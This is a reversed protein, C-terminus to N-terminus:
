WGAPQVRDAQRKAAEDGEDKRRALEREEAPTLLRGDGIQRVYLKLPDDANPGALDLRERSAADDPRRTRRRDPRLSARGCQRGRRQIPARNGRKLSSLRSSPDSSHVLLWRLTRCVTDENGDDVTCHTTRYPPTAVTRDHAANRTVAQTGVRPDLARQGRLREEGPDRFAARIGDAERMAHASPDTATVFSRPPALARRSSIASGAVARAPASGRGRSCSPGRGLDLGVVVRDPMAGDDPHVVADDRVVIRQEGAVPDLALGRSSPRSRPSRRASPAGRSRPRASPSSRPAIARRPEVLAVRAVSKRARPMQGGVRARASPARVKEEGRSAARKRDDLSRELEPEVSRSTLSPRCSSTTAPRTPAPGGSGDPCSSDPPSRRGRASAARPRRRGRADERLDRGRGGLAESRTFAASRSSCSTRALACSRPRRKTVPWRLRSRLISRSVHQTTTGGSRACSTRWERSRAPRARSTATSGPSRSRANGYVVTQLAGVADPPFFNASAAELGDREGLAALARAIPLAGASISFHARNLGVVIEVLRRADDVDNAVAARPMAVALM